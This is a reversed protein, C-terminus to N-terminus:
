NLLDDEISSQSLVTRISKLHKEFREPLAQNPTVIIPTVLIILETKNENFNSSKFLEGLIPIDGLFPVKEVAKSDTIQVLGSIVLTEGSRMNVVSETERILMGPVGNVITSFDITSMEAGIKSVINGNLDSLPEINLKIGYDQMEVVPQGFENLVALPYQGGSHFKATEGSRTSLSPEALIRAAGDEALLNIRSSLSSAIGFFTFSSEESFGITPNEPDFLGKGFEDDPNTVAYRGNSNFNKVFGINPGATSRGWAIGVNKAYNKNIELVQVKFNIMDKMMFETAVVKSVVGSFSSSIAKFVEYRNPLVTGELIILGNVSRVRVNTFDSLIDRINNVDESTNSATIVVRYNLVREGEKWIQIDTEGPMKPILLLEGNDLISTALLNDIGVAVRIVSGVEITKISGVHLKIINNENAASAILNFFLGVIILVYKIKGKMVQERLNNM